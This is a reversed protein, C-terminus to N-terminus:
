QVTFRPSARRTMVFARLFTLLRYDLRLYIRHSIIFLASINRTTVVLLDIRNSNLIQRLFFTKNINLNNRNLYHM